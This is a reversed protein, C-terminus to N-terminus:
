RAGPRSRSVSAHPAAGRRRGEALTHRVRGQGTGLESGALAGIEPALHDRKGFDRRHADAGFQNLLDEITKGQMFGIDMSNAGVMFPVHAGKGAAYATSPDVPMIKGDLVPGGVYTAASGMTTM